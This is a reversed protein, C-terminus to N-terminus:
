IILLEKKAFTINECGNERIIIVDEIRVGFKQPLYIGPEASIVAGVPMKTESAPSASPEEHIDLGLGHGFSHGFYAGYGADNILRRAAGDIERGKVGASAANIGATQAELVINYVKRMEDTAHGVAVTRTMDSCYGMYVCGFDMTVFDGPKIKASSPAGHPLSSNAGTVVIPNFSMREGGYKLMRYTLEAAIDLESVGARIVTIVDEYAREAIRQAAILSKIEDEDKSRRLESLLTSAPKFQLNIMTSFKKYDAFSMSADEFGLSTYTEDKLASEIRKKYTNESNILLVTMGSEAKEAAEFYRSDVFLFAETKSILVVGETSSFGSAFRRNEPSTILMADIEYAGFLSRIKSIKDM